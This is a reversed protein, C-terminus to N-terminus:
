ADPIYQRLIPITQSAFDVLAKEIDRQDHVNEFSSIRIYSGDTRKKLIADLVRSIREEYESRMIRGRCQFWYLIYQRKDGNQLVMLNVPIQNQGNGQPIKIIETRLVTSGSGILCNKPSHFQKGEKLQNFYSVYLEIPMNDPSQYVLQKYTDVGLMQIIDEKLIVQDSLNWKGIHRPFEDLSKAIPVEKINDV